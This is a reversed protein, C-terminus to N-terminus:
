RTTRKINRSIRRMRRKERWSLSRQGSSNVKDLMADM